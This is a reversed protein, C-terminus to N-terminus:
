QLPEKAFHPQFYRPKLTSYLERYLPYIAEYQEVAAQNPSICGTIRVIQECATTIDPFKRAGVAALLAAGFAAGETTNVTVLETNLVDALIQRWLLSKAGGGSLRVQKLPTMGVSRILEFSDRLGFAVGELVARVCHALSHRVTLGVFAGRAFPDPYPTREGTLYPLFLLGECGIPIQAAPEVLEEYSLSPAFSDHFWRLSGAASLMVGMLHWKGPAAHCFAHLRGEPEIFPHDTSDFVVGSTGLTLAVIGETVSGVGVAQAAQDGGGGVVPTGATLGTVQSAEKTIEGTIETGEFLTPMWDIPIELAELIEESWARRGLDMLVTGAGDAKDMAFQGTLRYRVYDKPLLIHAVRAFIEPENEKVWLIKPATFGTLAPNGTIQIFRERGLREHIEECQKQTRQDNWLIAPRLVNGQRDLLVLGHMQGTLGIAGIESSNIGSQQLVSRLAVRTAEWWLDPHQESWLPKPTEFSYEKTATAIVEGEENVLLAKTATTSVDIGCFYM